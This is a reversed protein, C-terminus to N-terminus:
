VTEPTFRFPPEDLVHDTRGTKLGPWTLKKRGADMTVTYTGAPLAVEFKEGNAGLVTESVGRGTATPFARAKQGPADEDWGAPRVKLTGGFREGARLTFDITASQGPLLKHRDDNEARVFGQKEAWVRTVHLRYSGQCKLTITYRGDPGTRTKNSDDLSVKV